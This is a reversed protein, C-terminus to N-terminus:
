IVQAYKLLWWLAGAAIFSDFRDLVGGHGPILRSYDKVQHIRKYWSAALDGGLSALCIALTLILLHILDFSFYKQLLVATLMSMVTGGMTGEITKNPSIYPALKRKGLLQGSVQSFGDFTLVIMYLFLQESSLPLLSFKFFFIAILIFSALFLWPLYINKSKHKRWVSIIEYLALLLLIACVYPFPTGKYIAYEMALVIFVYAYFKKWRDSREEKGAKKNVLILGVSGLLFYVLTLSLIKQEM